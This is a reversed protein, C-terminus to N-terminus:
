GPLFRRLNWVTTARNGSWGAPQSRGDHPRGNALTSLLDPDASCVLAESLNPKLLRRNTVNLM